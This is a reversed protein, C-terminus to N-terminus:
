LVNCCHTQLQLNLHRDTPQREQDTEEDHQQVCYIALEPSEWGVKGEIPRTTVQEELDLEEREVRDPFSFVM